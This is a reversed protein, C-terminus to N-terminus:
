WMEDIEWGYDLPWLRNYVKKFKSPDDYYGKDGGGKNMADRIKKLIKMRKKRELEQQQEIMKLREQAKYIQKLDLTKDPVLQVFETKSQYKRPIENMMEILHYTEFYLKEVLETRKITAFVGHSRFEMPAKATEVMRRYREVIEGMIYGMEYHPSEEYMFRMHNLNHIRQTAEEHYSTMIQLIRHPVQRANDDKDYRKHYFDQNQYSLQLIGIFILFLEYEM